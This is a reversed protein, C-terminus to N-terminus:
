EPVHLEQGRLFILGPEIRGVGHTAILTTRKFATAAEIFAWHADTALKEGLSSYKDNPDFITKAINPEDWGRGLEAMHAKLRPIDEAHSYALDSLRPDTRIYQMKGYGEQVALLTRIARPSPSSVCDDIKIGSAKLAAGTTLSQRIAQETM